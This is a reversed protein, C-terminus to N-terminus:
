GEFSMSSALSAIHGSEDVGGAARRFTEGDDLQDYDQGDDRDEAGDAYLLQDARPPKYARGGNRALYDAGQAVRPLHGDRLPAGDGELVVVGLLLDGDDVVAGVRVAYADAAGGQERVRVVGVVRAARDLAGVLQGGGADGRAVDRVPQRAPRRRAGRREAVLRNERCERVALEVDRELGVARDDAARPRRAVHREEYVVRRLRLLGRHGDGDQAAGPSDFRPPVAATRVLVDFLRRGPAARRPRPSAPKVMISITTAM